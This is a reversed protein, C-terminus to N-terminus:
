FHFTSFNIPPVLGKNENKKKLNEPYSVAANGGDAFKFVYRNCFHTM